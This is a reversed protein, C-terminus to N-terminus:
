KVSLCVRERLGHYERNTPTIEADVLSLLVEYTHVLQISPEIGEQASTEGVITVFGPGREALAARARRLREQLAADSWPWAPVESPPRGLGAAQQEGLRPCVNECRPVPYVESLLKAPNAQAPLPPSSVQQGLRFSLNRN